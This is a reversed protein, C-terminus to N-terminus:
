RSGEEYVRLPVMRTRGIWEPIVRRRLLEEISTERDRAIRDLQDFIADSLDLEIRPL